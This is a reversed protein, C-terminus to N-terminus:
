RADAVMQDAKKCLLDWAAHPDAENGKVIEGITTVLQTCVQGFVKSKNKPVVQDIHEFLYRVSPHAAYLDNLLGKGAISKRVPFMATEVSWKANNEANTLYTAFRFAAEKVPEPNDAYIVLGSGSTTSVGKDGENRTFPFTIGIEFDCLPQVNLYNTITDCYAAVEKQSFLTAMEKYASDIKTGTWVADGDQVLDKVDLAYQYFDGDSLVSKTGDDGAPDKGTANLMMTHNANYDYPFSFAAKGTKEHFAKAWTKFEDWTKPLPMGLEDLWTKNYYVIVGSVGFPIGYLSGDTDSMSDLLGDYYDDLSVGLREAYPRLSETLGSDGFDLVRVANIASMAPLGKGAAAAGAVQEAIVAYGGIYKPTVVVDPNEANFDAAAQDIIAARKKNAYNHWFEVQVPESVAPEAVQPTEQTGAAFACGAALLAACLLLIGRKM